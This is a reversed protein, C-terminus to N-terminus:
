VLQIKAKGDPMPRFHDLVPANWHVFPNDTGRSGSALRDANAVDRLILAVETSQITNAGFESDWQNLAPAHDAHEINFAALRIVKRGVLLVNQHQDRAADAGGNFVRAEVFM